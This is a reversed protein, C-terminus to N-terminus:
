KPKIEWSWLEAKVFGYALSQDMCIKLDLDLGEENFLEEVVSNNFWVNLVEKNAIKWRVELLTPDTPDLEQYFSSNLINFYLIPSPPSLLM